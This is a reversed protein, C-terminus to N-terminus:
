PMGTYAKALAMLFMRGFGGTSSHFSALKAVHMRWCMAAMGPKGLSVAATQTMLATVGCGPIMM